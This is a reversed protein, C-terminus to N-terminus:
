DARIKIVPGGANLPTQSKGVVVVIILILLLVLSIVTAWIDGEFSFYGSYSSLSGWLVIIAIIAGIVTYILYMWKKIDGELFLGTLILITLFVAIGIGLRPFVESFFVQLYGLRLAMLAVVVSIVINVGKNGSLVNTATLLGYVVSFLLLFPLLYDFVGISEWQSLLLQISM